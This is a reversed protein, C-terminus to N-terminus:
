PWTTGDSTRGCVYLGGSGDTDVAITTAGTGAGFNDHRDDAHGWQNTFSVTDGPMSVGGIKGTQAYATPAGWDFPPNIAFVVPQSGSRDGRIQQLETSNTVRLKDKQTGAGSGTCSWLGDFRSPAFVADGSGDIAIGCTPTTNAVTTDRWGNTDDSGDAPIKRVYGTSNEGTLVYNGDSTVAFCPGVIGPSEGYTTSYGGTDHVYLDRVYAGSLDVEVGYYVNNTAPVVVRPGVVQIKGNFCEMVAFSYSTSPGWLGSGSINYTWNLSGDTVSFSRVNQNTDLIILNGSDDMGVSHNVPPGGYNIPTKEGTIAVDWEENGNQDFRFIRPSSGLSDAWYFGGVGTSIGAIAWIWSGFPLGSPSDRWLMTGSSNFRGITYFPFNYSSYAPGGYSQEEDCCCQRIGYGSM